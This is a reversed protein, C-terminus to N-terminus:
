NRHRFSARSSKDNRPAASVYNVDGQPAKPLSVVPLISKTLRVVLFRAGHTM